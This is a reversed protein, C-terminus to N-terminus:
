LRPEWREGGLAEEVLRVARETASARAGEVEYMRLVAGVVSAPVVPGLEERATGYGHRAAALAASVHQRAMRALVVPYRRLLAHDRYGPPCLDFLWTVATAEWGEVGPPRVVPPWGPPAVGVRGQPKAPAGQEALVRAFRSPREWAPSDDGDDDDGGYM